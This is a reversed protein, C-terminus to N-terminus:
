DPSNGSGVIQTTKNNDGQVNAVQRVNMTSRSEAIWQQLFGALSPDVALAKRLQMNLAGQAAADEPQKVLEHLAEEATTQKLRKRFKDFLATASAKAVEEAGKEMAKNLVPGLATVASLALSTITSPDLM